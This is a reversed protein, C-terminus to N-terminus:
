SEKQQQKNLSEITIEQYDTINEYVKFFVKVLITSGIPESKLKKQSIIRDDQGLQKKLKEDALNMAKNVAEDYTYIEDITTIQEENIYNISIPLLKNKVSFINTYIKDKYQKKNSLSIEKNLFNLMINKRKKNTKIIQQYYLPMEVEVQYWTEAFVTGSASTTSKIQEEKMINGSIIIDGKKVFDNIKKVIEGKSAEIKTIIGDKKAIIHRNPLSEKQKNIIREEVRAIYKVGVKEIELWEIKDKNNEIIDKAIQEQKQFNIVFKHKKIGRNELEKYIIDRVEQKAHVVEVDWIIRTLFILLIFGFILSIVFIYNKLLFAKIKALGYLRKLEIDYITKIELLKLYNQQDLKIYVSKGVYKINHLNIGM